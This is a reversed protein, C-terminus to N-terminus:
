VRGFSFWSMLCLDHMVALHDQSPVVFYIRTVRIILEISQDVLEGGLFRSAKQAQTEWDDDFVALGVM